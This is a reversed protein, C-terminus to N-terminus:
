LVSGSIMALEKWSWRLLRVSRSSKRCTNCIYILLSDLTGNDRYIIQIRPHCHTNMFLPLHIHHPSLRALVHVHVEVRQKEEGLRTQYDATMKEYETQGSQSNVRSVICTCRRVRDSYWCSVSHAGLVSVCSM